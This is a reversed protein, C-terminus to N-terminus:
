LRNEMCCDTLNVRKFLFKYRTERERVIRCFCQFVFERGQGIPGTHDPGEMEERVEDGAERM